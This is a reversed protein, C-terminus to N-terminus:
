RERSYRNVATRMYVYVAIPASRQCHYQLQYIAGPLLALSYSQCVFSIGDESRGERFVDLERNKNLRASVQRPVYIHVHRLWSGM